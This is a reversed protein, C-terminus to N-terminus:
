KYTLATENAAVDMGNSSLLLVGHSSGDKNTQVHFPHSGYLNAYENACSIDRAWLALTRGDRPMMLGKPNTFEGIGYVDADAPLATTLEIYQDKFL